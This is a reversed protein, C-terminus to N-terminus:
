ATLRVTAFVQSSPDTFFEVMEFSTTTEGTGTVVQFVGPPLGIADFVEALEANAIHHLANYVEPRNITVTMLHGDIEVKSFEGM